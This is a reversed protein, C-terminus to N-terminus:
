GAATRWRLSSSMATTVLSGVVEKGLETIHLNNTAPEHYVLDRETLECLAEPSAVVDTLGDAFRCLMQVATPSLNRRIVDLPVNPPGSSPIWLEVERLPYHSGSNVDLWERGDEGTFKLVREGGKILIGLAYQGIGPRRKMTAFAEYGLAGPPFQVPLPVPPIVFNDDPM